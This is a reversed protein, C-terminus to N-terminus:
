AELGSPDEIYKAFEELFDAADKGDIVQHDITLSFGMTTAIVVQGNDVWPVTCMRGVGLIMTEPSNLIPTFYDIDQKGLNTLTAVANGMQDPQLDGKRAEEVLKKREGAIDALSMQDVNRIVPVLLGDEVSVALGIDIEKKNVARDGIFQVQMKPCSAIAMGLAKVLLDNYSIGEKGVKYKELEDMRITRFLTLQATNQLSSKMNEAITRRMRSIPEGLVESKEQETDKEEAENVKNQSDDAEESDEEAAEEETDAVYVLITGVEVEEGVDFLPKTLYGSCPAEIDVTTKETEISLLPDGETIEDGQEVYWEMIEAAMMTMGFKPMYVPTKAM